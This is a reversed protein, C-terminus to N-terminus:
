FFNIARVAQKDKIHRLIYKCNELEPIADSYEEIEMSSEFKVIASNVKELEDHEIYFSMKYNIDQWNEKLIQIEDILKEKQEDEGNNLSEAIQEIKDLNNIIEEVSKSTYSQCIGNILFIIAVIIIVIIIEKKM